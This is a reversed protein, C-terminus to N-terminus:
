SKKGKKQKKVKTVYTKWNAMMAAVKDGGAEDLKNGEADLVVLYPLLGGQTYPFPLGRHDKPGIMPFKIKGKSAWSKATADDADINYMVIEAGKGKMEKYAKNIMPLEAVCIGCTSRSKYVFFVSAKKNLKASNVPTKESLAQTLAPLAPKDEAATEQASASLAASICLALGALISYLYQKM